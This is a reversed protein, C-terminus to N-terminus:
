GEAQPVVFLKVGEIRVVTVHSGTPLIGQSDTRATWEQGDVKVRGVASLNDIDQIVIATRGIVRDANTPVHRNNVYKQALPRMALMSALSVLLFVAVQITISPTITAVILALLAGVAFWLSVLGVTVAEAVGFAILAGLWLMQMLDM